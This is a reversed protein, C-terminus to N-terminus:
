QSLEEILAEPSIVRVRSERYDKVNRTCLLEMGSGSATQEMIADEYDSIESGIADKIHAGKTDLVQFLETLARIHIRAQRESHAYKRILYYIDACEKATLYGELEQNAVAIFLKEADKNWPERAELADIIVCTDFLVRKKM